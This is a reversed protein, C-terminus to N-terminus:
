MKMSVGGAQPQQRDVRKSRGTASHDYRDLALIQGQLTETVQQVSNLQNSLIQVRLQTHSPHYQRHVICPGVQGLFDDFLYSTVERPLREV